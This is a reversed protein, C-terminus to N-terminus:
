CKTPMPNTEGQQDRKQSTQCTQCQFNQCQARETSSSQYDKAETVRPRPIVWHLPHTPLLSLYSSNQWKEYHQIVHKQQSGYESTFSCACDHCRGLQIRSQQQRDIHATCYLPLSLPFAFIRYVSRSQNTLCSSTIRFAKYYYM